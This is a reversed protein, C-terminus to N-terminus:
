ATLPLPEDIFQRALEVAVALDNEAPLFWGCIRARRIVGKELRERTLIGSRIFVARPDDKSADLRLECLDSPHVLQTYSLGLEDQRGVILCLAEERHGWLVPKTAPDCEQFASAELRNAYFWIAGRVGSEIRSMPRADLLDTQMSLIFEIASAQKDAFHKLRWYCHKMVASTENASYSAVLDHGRVYAEVLPSDSGSFVPALVYLARFDDTPRGKWAFERLGERLDGLNFSASLNGCQLRAQAGHLEWRVSSSQASTTM